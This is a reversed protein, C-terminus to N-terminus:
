PGERSTSSQAAATPSQAASRRSVAVWVAVSSHLVPYRPESAFPVRSRTLVVGGIEQMDQFEVGLVQELADLDSESMMTYDPRSVKGPKWVSGDRGVVEVVGCQFARHREEAENTARSIVNLLVRRSLRQFRFVIPRQGEHFALKEYERAEAYEVPKCGSRDWDIAEDYFRVVDFTKRHEM